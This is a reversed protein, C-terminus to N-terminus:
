EFDYGEIQSAYKSWSERYKYSSVASLPVYIKCTTEFTYNDLGTPPTTPTCYITSLIKCLYFASGRITTVSSPITITKLSSCNGFAYIGITTLSTNLTIRALNTCNAFAHEDIINVNQPIIIRILDECGTFTYKSVETLGTFYQFENFTSINTGRFVNTIDTVKAAENYSLEGDNDFDWYGVCIAKVAEDEFQIVNPDASQGTKSITIVTGDALEFYVNNEDQTIKISDADKGDEGTAKGLQTWNTGNDYSIWWYGERIELKPTVGDSGDAGNNGDTGQAKIKQGDVVIFEGDLTWYYIGDTDKKVSIVPTNGDAGDKGNYIVIPNSKAFKITYGVVKGNETLPDVSTIYDNNQLATVITQLASLNTNTENCLRQLAEFASWTPLKIQTGNSLTFIVYDTSTEYDVGSFMSDGGIGDEGTAKGLQTWNTGNDYSVFWYDNEIKFQPTTGNTGNTGDKGEAQIKGGDVVIFEGNLTWYYVGDTDKKVSITPTTGDEGDQGDKGHYITIPNGKSFTITYGIEKGDKMLPTTGTVYVNNQLATVITQLSSINTNMQKCLEELKAVRNELGHVNNWLDDDDYKCSTLAVVAFLAAFALLKKM